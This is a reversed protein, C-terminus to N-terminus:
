GFRRQLLRHRRRFTSRVAWGEIPDLAGVRWPETDFPAGHTPDTMRVFPALERNNGGVTSIAAWVESRNARLTVEITLRM